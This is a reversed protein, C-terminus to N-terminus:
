NASGFDSTHISKLHEWIAEFQKQADGGYHNTLFTKGSDDTYRPMMTDEIIRQPNMMFRHYYENRLRDTVKNFNISEILVGGKAPQNGIGHCTVCAFGGETKILKDGIQVAEPSIITAKIVAEPDIGHMMALGRSVSRAHASFAPMKAILGGRPKDPIRGAIFDHMWEINLKGGLWTLDPRGQYDWIQEIGLARGLEDNSILKESEAMVKSWTDEVNDITHCAICRLSILQREAALSSVKRYLNNFGVKGFAQLSEREKNTFNFRPAQGFAEESVSLCGKSWDGKELYQLSPAKYSNSFEVNMSHCNLCGSSVLLEKGLDVDGGLFSSKYDLSVRNESIIYATLDKAQNEDLQFNPMKSSSHYRAPNIIFDKLAEPQWKAHAYDLSVRQFQDNTKEGPNSHCGICGLAQFILSGRVPDGRIMRNMAGSSDSLSLLYSSIHKITGEPFDGHIVAPMKSDPSILAPNEIWKSLWEPKVRNGIDDLSPAKWLLEPMIERSLLQESPLHCSICKHSAFLERGEHIKSFRDIGASIPSFWLANPPIPERSFTSSEWFLRLGVDIPDIPDGMYTINEPSALTIKIPNLGSVLKIPESKISVLKKHGAKRYSGGSLIELGNIAVDLFGRYDAVITVERTFDSYLFGEWVLNFAGSEMFPSPTEVMPIYLSALRSRRVDVIKEGSKLSNVTLALGPELGQDRFEMEFRGLGMNLPLNPISTLDDKSFGRDSLASADGLVHVTHHIFQSIWEGDRSKLNYKIEMQMVPKMDPIKLFVSKGDDSLLVESAYLKDHGKRGDSVRYDQSGYNPTRRYNWREVSYSQPNTATERDLANSFGILVGTETANLKTPIHLPKGTYRIRYFGGPFTKNSSWGFLGCMYLGNDEPNLRGRMVGTPFEDMPVEVIGGQKVGGVEEYLVNFVKGYGYSISLLSGSLPGWNDSNVWLQESPSRDVKNHIWCLPQEYDSAKQDPSHYAGMAGYFEYRKIWNIKNKPIWHGEQDSSVFSGDDNLLVGNPARFGSAVIESEEGDKSVRIITGHHPVLAEKAHRAGKAYYLSGEEDVQLDMAFEHFHETVQHDNNFNEYFDTEGDNNLDRLITIQDRCTVYIDEDIIKLGLPQFLGTAIRKWTLSGLSNGLGEVIWVDGQWTCIAAKSPDEFYDFGGFRLYSNWPNQMPATIYDWTVPHEDSGLKAVTTLEQNWNAPGGSTFQSLDVPDSVRFGAGALKKLQTDTSRFLVLKINTDSSSAPIRLRIHSGELAWEVGTADTTCGVALSGDGSETKLVALSGTAPSNTSVSNFNYEEAIANDVSALELILDQESPSINLTRVVASHQGINELSPMELVTAEGVTYSVIVNDGHVYLGKWHAWDRPLPGYPKKDLGLMRPDEFSEALNAWGPGKPTTFILDGVISMHTTHSGDFAINTWNVFGEGGWSAAVRLLDTDYVIFRNGKALGGDGEDLRIAVGKYAFNGPAVEYTATLYPGYNMKEYWEEGKNEGDGRSASELGSSCGWITLMVTVFLSLILAKKQYANMAILFTRNQKM